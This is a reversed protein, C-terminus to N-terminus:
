RLAGGHQDATRGAGAGVVDGGVEKAAGAADDTTGLAAITPAQRLTVIGRFDHRFGPRGAVARRGKAEEPCRAPDAEPAAHPADQGSRGARRRNQGHETGSHGADGELVADDAEHRRRRGDEFGDPQGDIQAPQREGSTRPVSPLSVLPLPGTSTSSPRM